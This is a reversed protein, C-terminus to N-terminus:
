FHQLLMKKGLAPLAMLPLYMFGFWLQWWAVLTSTHVENMDQEKMKSDKYINSVASPIVSLFYLVVAASVMATTASSPAEAAGSDAAGDMSSDASSAPGGFLYNASAVIAGLLIFLSGWIQFSEFRSKLFLYAGIMTIPIVLQNLITQLMGPCNVGAIAGITASASDMLGMYVYVSAPTKFIDKFSNPNYAIIVGSVIVAQVTYMLSSFQSIFFGYNTTPSSFANLTAKYLLNNASAIIISLLLLWAMTSTQGQAETGKNKGNSM